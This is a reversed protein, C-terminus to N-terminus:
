IIVYVTPVKKNLKVYSLGKKTYSQQLLRPLTKWSKTAYFESENKELWFLINTWSQTVYFEFDKVLIQLVYINSM